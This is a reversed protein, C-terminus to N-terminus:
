DHGRDYKSQCKKSRGARKGLSPSRVGSRRWWWGRVFGCRRGCRGAGFNIRGLFSVVFGEELELRVFVVLADVEAFSEDQFIRAAFIRLSDIRLQGVGLVGFLIEAFHVGVGVFGQGQIRVVGSQQNEDAPNNRVLVIGVIGFGVGLEVLGLFVFLM